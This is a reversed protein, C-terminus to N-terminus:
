ALSKYGRVKGSALTFATFDGLLTTGAPIVFGTM